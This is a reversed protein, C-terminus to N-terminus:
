CAGMLAAYTAEDWCLDAFLTMSCGASCRMPISGGQCDADGTCSRSCHSAGPAGSCVGSDCTTVGNAVCWTSDEFCFTEPIECAEGLDSIVPESGASGATGISPRGGAGGAGGAGGSGGSGVDPWVRELTGEVSSTCTLPDGSLMITHSESLTMTQGDSSKMVWSTFNMIRRLDTPPVVESCSKPTLTATDGVVNFELMCRRSDVVLSRDVEVRGALGEEITVTGGVPETETESGPCAFTDTGSVYRWSGVFRSACVGSTTNCAPVPEACHENSTCEVCRGATTDCHPAPAMCPPCASAGGSGAVGDENGAIGGGSASGGGFAAAGSRGVGGTGAADTGGAAGAGNSDDSPPVRAAEVCSATTAVIVFLEGISRRHGSHRIMM